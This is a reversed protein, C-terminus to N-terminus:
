PTMCKEYLVTKFDNSLTAQFQPQSTFSGKYRLQLDLITVKGKILKLFVKAGESDKNKQEDLIMEYKKNGKNLAGLGCLVTHLGKPSEFGIKANGDKDIDGIGTILAFAFSNKDLFKTLDKKLVLNLLAEAFIDSYKNMVDRLANFVSDTKSAIRGNVFARMSLKIDKMQGKSFEKGNIQFLNGDKQDKPKDLNVFGKGKLNILRMPDKANKGNLTIKMLAKDNSPLKGNQFKLYGAGVSERVVKAFWQEKAEELEKKISIFKPGDLVTDFAKNILTPDDSSESSKKKLSVGYFSLGKPNNWQFIIDSSNYDKFGFASVKFKSVEPPWTDGTLFVKDCVAKNIPVGSEKSRNPVWTRISRAASIGRVAEKLFDRDSPNFAKLFKSKNSSSGYQVKNSEALKKGAKLFDILGQHGSKIYKDLDNPKMLMAVSAMVESAEVGINAM